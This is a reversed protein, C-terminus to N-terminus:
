TKLLKRQERKKQKEWAKRGLQANRLPRGFRAIDSQEALNIAWENFHVKELNQM